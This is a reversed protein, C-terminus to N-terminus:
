KNNLWAIQAPLVSHITTSPLLQYLNPSSWSPPHTFTKEPVPEDPYHRVSSRQQQTNNLWQPMIVVRVTLRHNKQKHIAIDWSGSFPNTGYDRPLRTQDRTPVLKFTLTVLSLFRCKEAREAAQTCNINPLVDKVELKHKLQAAPNGPMTELEVSFSFLASIQTRSLLSNLRDSV